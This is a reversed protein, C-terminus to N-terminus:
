TTSGASAVAVVRRETASQRAAEIVALGAIADQPDVPPPAVGRLAEVMGEYFRRYSGSETALPQVDDGAGLKGSQELPYAGFGLGHPRQGERLKAEQPDMGWKVYAARSGLVRFRPGPQAAMSTMFLHSRVGNKHTLALFSDDDVRVGPRRCDLEAYVDIAPGFLLLAQDILHSGLDFLLGGAEEPAGNERWNERVVPRWRDFRSEFRLPEGLAGEAVLRQVTIFDGDWRRNQFVSLVLGRRKAEAVLPRAERVSTAFPKDVVVHLGKALAELTLPAHTRNPSAIVVLDVETAHEWLRAPSDVIRANPHAHAADRQREPNGTVIVALRLGPTTVILPAHFAAGALGYGILGVRFANPAERTAM